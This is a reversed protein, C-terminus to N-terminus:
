KSSVTGYLVIALKVSSNKYSNLQGIHVVYRLSGVKRHMFPCLIHLLQQICISLHGVHLSGNRLVLFLCNSFMMLAALIGHLDGVWGGRDRFLQVKKGVRLFSKMVEERVLTAVLVVNEDSREVDRSRLINRKDGRRRGGPGSFPASEMVEEELKHVMMYDSFDKQWRREWVGM